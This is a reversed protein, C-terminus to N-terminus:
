SLPLYVRRTLFVAPSALNSVINSTKPLGLGGFTILSISGLSTVTGPLFSRLSLAFIEPNGAGVMEQSLSPFSILTRLPM